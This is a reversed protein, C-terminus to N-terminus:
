RFGGSTCSERQSQTLVGSCPGALGLAVERVVQNGEGLKKTPRLPLSQPGLPEAAIGQFAVDTREFDTQASRGLAQLRRRADDARRERDAFILPALAAGLTQEEERVARELLLQELIPEQSARSVVLNGTFPDRTFRAEIGRAELARIDRAAQFATGPAVSTTAGPALFGRIGESLVGLGLSALVGVQLIM